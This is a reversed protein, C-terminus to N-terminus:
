ASQQALWARLSPLHDQYHQFSGGAFIQWPIWEPPMQAFRHPNTLDEDTLTQAAHLLAAYAQQEEEVIAHFPRDKEHQYVMENRADTSLEWLESGTLSHTLMVPTIERESWCIHAILDKVSWNDTVGTQLMQRENFLAIVSDWQARTEQLTYLFTATDM